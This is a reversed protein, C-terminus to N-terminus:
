KGLVPTANGIIITCPKDDCVRGTMHIRELEVFQEPSLNMAQRYANDAQARATEAQQRNQEALKTQLETQQRQQEEATRIRQTKIAQPPNVRGLSFNVIEVPLGKLNIYAQLAGRVDKEVSATGTAEIALAHMTQGKFADRVYNNLVPAVNHSYWIPVGDSSGSAGSFRTVLKVPDTVRLTLVAHFDLPIGDSSMMDDFAMNFATPTVDVYDVSTTFWTFSLGTKVTEQEVGGHGFFLPKDTLVAEQGADPAARGCGSLTSCGLLLLAAAAILSLKM